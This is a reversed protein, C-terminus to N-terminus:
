SGMKRPWLSSHLQSLHNQIEYDELVYEGKLWKECAKYEESSLPYAKVNPLLDNPDKFDIKNNWKKCEPFKISKEGSFVKLYDHLWKPM